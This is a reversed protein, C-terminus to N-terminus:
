PRTLLCFAQPSAVVLVVKVDVYLLVWSTWQREPLSIVSFPEHQPACPLLHSTFGFIMIWVQNLYRVTVWTAKKTFICPLLEALDEVVGFVMVAWCFCKIHLRIRLYFWCLQLQVQDLCTQLHRNPWIRTIHFGSTQILSTWQVTWSQLFYLHGGWIGTSISGQQVALLSKVM